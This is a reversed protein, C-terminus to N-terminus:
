QTCIHWMMPLKSGMDQRSEMNQKCVQTSGPFSAVDMAHCDPGYKSWILRMGLSKYPAQSHSKVWM